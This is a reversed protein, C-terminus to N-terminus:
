ASEVPPVARNKVFGIERQVEPFGLFGLTSLTKITVAAQRLLYVRSTYWKEFRKERADRSLATFQWGTAFIASINVLHLLVKIGIALAPPYTAIVDDIFSDMDVDSASLSMEDVPPLIADFVADAIKHERQSLKVQGM